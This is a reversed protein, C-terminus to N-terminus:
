PLSLKNSFSYPKDVDIKWHPKCSSSIILVIYFPLWLIPKRPPKSTFFRGALALSMPEMGPDPIDGPSPFLLGSWYAQRCFGMSLPFYLRFGFPFFLVLPSYYLLWTTSLMTWPSMKSLFFFFATAFYNM